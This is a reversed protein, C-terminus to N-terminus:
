PQSIDKKWQAKIIRRKNWYQVSADERASFCVTSLVAFDLSHKQKELVAEREMPLIQIEANM